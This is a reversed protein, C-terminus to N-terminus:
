LATTNRGPFLGPLFRRTGPPAEAHPRRTAAAVICGMRFGFLADNWVGKSGARTRGCSSTTTRPTAVTVSYGQKRRTRFTSRHPLQHATLVPLFQIFNTADSM